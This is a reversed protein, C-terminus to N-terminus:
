LESKLQKLLELQQATLDNKFSMPRGMLEEKLTKLEGADKKTLKKKGELSDLKKKKATLELSEDTELGFIPSVILENIPLYKPADEFQTIQIKENKRKLLYLEGVDTQQVTLPSHTTCVFQFNPLIKGLFEILKRQWVPHLHLELEDILLLGGAKLPDKRDAFVDNLRYLIDGILGAMNQYGDSLLDLPILGYSTKFIIARRSRDIHDFTVNPLFNNLTKKIVSLGKGETEYDLSVAWEDLSYLAANRSFMTAISNSRDQSFSSTPFNSQSGSLKRNAGYGVVFYNRDTHELADDIEKLGDQSEKIIRSPTSGRRINLELNREEGKATVLVAKIVCLEEGFRIWDDVNGLLEGIADSGATILAIAKLLNSKGTGNEGLFFTWQRIDSSDLHEFNIEAISINRFNKVFLSKLFM